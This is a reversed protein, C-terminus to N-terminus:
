FLLGVRAITNSHVISKSVLCIIFVHRLPSRSPFLFVFCMHPSTPSFPSPPPSIHNWYKMECQEYCQNRIFDTSFISCFKVSMFWQLCVLSQAPVKWTRRETLVLLGVTILALLQKKLSLGAEDTENLMKTLHKASLCSSWGEYVSWTTSERSLDLRKRKIKIM